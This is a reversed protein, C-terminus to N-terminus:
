LHRKSLFTKEEVADLSVKIYMTVEFQATTSRLSGTEVLKHVESRFTDSYRTSTIIVVLCLSLYRERLLSTVDKFVGHVSLPELSSHVNNVQQHGRQDSFM